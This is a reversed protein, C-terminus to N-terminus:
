QWAIVPHVSTGGNTTILTVYVPTAISPRGNVGWNVSAPWTAIANFNDIFVLFGFVGAPVNTFSVTHAGNTTITAGAKSFDLAVAANLAPTYDTKQGKSRTFTSDAPTTAGITVADMAGGTVAIASAAQLAMTGLGHVATGTAAIHAAFDAKIKLLQTWFQLFLTRWGGAQTSATIRNSADYTNGQATNIATWTAGNDNSWEDAITTLQHGTWTINWRFGITLAANLWTVFQPHDLDAGTGQTISQVFGELRGNTIADRLARLDNLTAAAENAPTQSGQPNAPDFDTHAPTPM